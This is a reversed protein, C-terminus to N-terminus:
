FLIFNLRVPDLPNEVLGVVQGLLACCYFMLLHVSRLLVLSSISIQFIKYGVLYFIVSLKM